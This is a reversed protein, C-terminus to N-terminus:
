ISSTWVCGFEEISLFSLVCERADFICELLFLFLYISVVVFHVRQVGGVSWLALEELDV